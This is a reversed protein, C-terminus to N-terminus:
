LHVQYLPPITICVNAFDVPLPPVIKFGTSCSGLKEGDNDFPEETTMPDVPEFKSSEQQVISTTPEPHEGNVETHPSSLAVSSDSAKPVLKSTDAEIGVKLRKASSGTVAEVKNGTAQISFFTLFYFM